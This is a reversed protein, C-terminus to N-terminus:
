EAGALTDDGVVEFLGAQLRVKVLKTKLRDAVAACGTDAVGAREM